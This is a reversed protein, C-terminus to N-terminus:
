KLNELATLMEIVADAFEFTHTFQGSEVGGDNDIGFNYYDNYLQDIMGWRLDADQDSNFFKKMKELIEKQDETM